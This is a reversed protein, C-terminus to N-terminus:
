TRSASGPVNKGKKESRNARNREPNKAWANTLKASSVAVGGFGLAPTIHTAVVGVDFKM